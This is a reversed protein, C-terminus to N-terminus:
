RNTWVIMRSILPAVYGNAFDSIDSVWLEVGGPIDANTGNVYLVTSDDSGLWVIESVDSDNTLLKIDGSKLDLLNWQSTTKHTEFSYQSQSFM